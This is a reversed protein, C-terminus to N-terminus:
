KMGPEMAPVPYKPRRLRGGAKHLSGGSALKNIHVTSNEGHLSVPSVNIRQKTQKVKNLALIIAM